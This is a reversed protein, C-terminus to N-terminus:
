DGHPHGGACAVLCKEAVRVSICLQPSVDTEICSCLISVAVSESDYLPTILMVQLHLRRGTRDYAQHSAQRRQPAVDGCAHLNGQLINVPVGEGPVLREAGAQGPVAGASPGCGHRRWLQIMLFNLLEMLSGTDVKLELEKM